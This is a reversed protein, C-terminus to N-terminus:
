SGMSGQTLSHIQKMGKRGLNVRKYAEGFYKSAGEPAICSQTLAICPLSLVSIFQTAAGALLPFRTCTQEM